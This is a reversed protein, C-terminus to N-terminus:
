PPSNNQDHPSCKHDVAERPGCLLAERVFSIVQGWDRENTQRFLRATPYWPNDSRGLLWRWDPLFPVLVWVPKALAGALHAVSTDVSIVLDLCSVLSATDAFSALSHGFNLIGNQERLITEDSARIDKQLSVFTADVDLLPLFSSLPISRKRDHVHRPNGSWALGIRPRDKPGLRAEWDRGRAARLYPTGAPISDLRTGFALPLSLMPSQFDFEPRPEDRTVCHSLGDLGFLLQKLSPDVEVIVQAGREAILPVYRCFQIIDGMGQEGYLLITKGDISEFEGQWLPQAFHRQENGLVPNKWRWEAQSWGREFDGTMLRVVGANWHAEAYDPKINTAKDYSALADAFRGMEQLANGLNNHLAAYGPNLAVARECSALSDEFRDLANLTMGQNTYAGSDDPKLAIAKDYSALAEDHRGLAHFSIGRNNYVGAYDPVLAIVKNFNALACDHRKMGQLALGRNMYISPHPAKTLILTFIDVARQLNGRSM